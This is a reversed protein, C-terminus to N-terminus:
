IYDSHGTEFLAKLCKKWTKPMKVFNELEGNEAMECYQTQQIRPWLDHLDPCEHPDYIGTRKVAFMFEDCIWLATNM